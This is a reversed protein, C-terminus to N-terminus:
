RKMMRAAAALAKASSSCATSIVSAPGDLELQAQVFAGLSFTNQTGAYNFDGPLAGTAPNRFRYAIETQLIGSTSTGLIVGIRRAGYRARALAVAQEFDDGTLGLQALRNNRCDFAALRGRVPALQEEPIQGVWTDLQVTEFDCRTLGSRLNLLADVHPRLGTGACTTLTLSTIALPTM